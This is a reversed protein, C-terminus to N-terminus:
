VVFLELRLGLVAWFIKGFTGRQKRSLDGADLVAGDIRHVQLEAFYKLPNEM